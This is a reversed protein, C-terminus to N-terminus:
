TYRPIVYFLCKNNGWWLKLYQSGFLSLVRFGYLQLLLECTISYIWGPRKDFHYWHDFYQIFWTWTFPLQYCQNTVTTYQMLIVSELRNLDFDSDGECSDTSGRYLGKKRLKSLTPSWINQSTTSTSTQM